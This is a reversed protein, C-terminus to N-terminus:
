RGESDREQNKQRENPMQLAEVATKATQLRVVREQLEQARSALDAAERDQQRCLETVKEADVDLNVGMKQLQRVAHELANLEGEHLARYEARSAPTRKLALDMQYPKFENYIQLYKAAQRYQGSKQNIAEIQAKLEGMRGRLADVKKDFDGMTAINERRLLNLTSALQKTEAVRGRRQMATIRGVLSRDIKAQRRQLQGILESGIVYKQSQDSATFGYSWNNWLAVRCSGGFSRDYEVFEAPVFLSRIGYEPLTVTVGKESVSAVDGGYLELSVPAVGTTQELRRILDEGRLAAKEGTATQVQYKYGSTIAVQFTDTEPDYTVHDKDLFMSQAGARDPVNILIGDETTQTVYGRPLRVQVAPVSPRVIKEFEEAIRDALSGAETFSFKGTQIAMKIADTSYAAGLAWERIQNDDRDIYRVGGAKTKKCTVGNRTLIEIFNNYDSAAAAAARIKEKIDALLETREQIQDRISAATYTGDKALARDRTKRQQGEMQYTTYKKGDEIQVGLAAAATKFEEYSTAAELAFRLRQRILKRYSTKQPVYQYSRGLQQQTKIVSLGADACIRDSINRIEKATTGPNTRFKRFTYFSTANFIIHNHIHGKDIHTSIVYEHQGGLFQDALKKGLEHAQEPTVNDTPSFSQIMHYALISESRNGVREGLAQRAQAQTVSMEISAITPDVNYGSVLLEEDTKEPNEIYDLAKNLTQKIAHIRTYAM